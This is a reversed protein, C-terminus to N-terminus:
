QAFRAPFGEAGVLGTAAIHELSLLGAYHQLGLASPPSHIYRAQVGGLDACIERPGPTTAITLEGCPRHRRLARLVPICGIADGYGGVFPLLLPGGPPTADTLPPPLTQEAPLSLAAAAVGGAAEDDHMVYREGKRLLLTAAGKEAPVRRTQIAQ